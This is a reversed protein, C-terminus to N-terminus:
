FSDAVSELHLLLCEEVLVLPRIKNEVLVKVTINGNSCRVPLIKDFIAGCLYVVTILPFTESAHELRLRQSLSMLQTVM